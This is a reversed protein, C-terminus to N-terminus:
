NHDNVAESQQMPTKVAGFYGLNPSTSNLYVSFLAFNVSCGIQSPGASMRALCVSPLFRKMIFRSEPVIM